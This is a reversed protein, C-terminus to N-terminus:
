ALFPRLDDIFYAPDESVTLLAVGRPDNIDEYLVGRIQATALADVLPRTDMCDGFALMQMFLRRDRSLTEGAESRGHELIDIHETM